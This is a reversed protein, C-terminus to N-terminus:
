DKKGTRQECDSPNGNYGTKLDQNELWKKDADTNNGLRAIPLWGVGGCRPCKFNLKNKCIPCNCGFTRCKIESSLQDIMRDVEQMNIYHSAPLEEHSHCKKKLQTLSKRIDNWHKTGIVVDVLHPPTWQNSEPDTEGEMDSDFDSPDFTTGHQPHDTVRSRKKSAAEKIANPGSAILRQQENPSLDSVVAAASVTIKGQEVAAVIEPVANKKVKGARQVSSTGVKLLKAAEAQTTIVEISTNSEPRGKGLTALGAALMARQGDTLHRRHLNRSLISVIPDPMEQPSVLKVHDRLNLNLDKIARLRNRGDILVATELTEGRFILHDLLGNDKIDDRFVEYESQPMLPFLEAVPHIKVEPMPRVKQNQAEDSMQRDIKEDQIEFPTKSETEINSEMEQPESQVISREPEHPLQFDAKDGSDFLSQQGLNTDCRKKNGNPM